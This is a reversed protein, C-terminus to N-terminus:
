LYIKATINMSNINIIVISDGNDICNVSEKVFLLLMTFSTNACGGGGVFVEIIIFLL